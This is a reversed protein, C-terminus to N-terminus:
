IRMRLGRDCCASRCIAAALVPLLYFIRCACVRCGATSILNRSRALGRGGRFFHSHSSRPVGRGGRTFHSHPTPVCRPWWALISFATASGNRQWCKRAVICYSPSGGCSIWPDGAIKPLPEPSTWTLCCIDPAPSRAGRCLTPFGRRALWGLQPVGPAGPGEYRPERRHNGSGLVPYGTRSKRFQRLSLGRSPRAQRPLRPTALTKPLVLALCPSGFPFCRTHPAQRDSGDGPPECRPRALGPLSPWALTERTERCGGPTGFTLCRIDPAQGKSGCALTECRRATFRPIVFALCQIGM